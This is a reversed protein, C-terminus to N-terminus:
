KTNMDLYFCVKNRDLRNFINIVDMEVADNGKYRGRLKLFSQFLIYFWQNLHYNEEQSYIRVNSELTKLM